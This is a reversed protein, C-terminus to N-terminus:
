PTVMSLVETGSQWDLRGLAQRDLDNSWLAANTMGLREVVDRYRQESRRSQAGYGFSQFVMAGLLRHAVSESLAGKAVERQLVQVANVPGTVQAGMASWEWRDLAMRGCVVPDLDSVAKVGWRELWGARYEGEWRLSGDPAGKGAYAEHQDYLRVGGANSGVYLTQANGKGPDNYTYSRRAWPRKMPALGEVYLAPSTVGRFDRALDLRKVRADDPATSAEVMEAAGALLVSVAAPLDRLPLLSCGHPDAFRAPNAEVKGWPQGKITRLGVMLEPGGAYPIVSGQYTVDGDRGYTVRSWHRDDAWKRVPFSLSLRDCGVETPVGRWNPASEGETLSPFTTATASM